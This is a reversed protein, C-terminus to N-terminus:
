KLIILSLGVEDLVLLPCRDVDIVGKHIMDLLRGPTGVLLWPRHRKVAERQRAPSASGIMQQVKDRLGPDLLQQAMHMIQISLEHSPAVVVGHLDPLPRGSRAPNQTKPNVGPQALRQQLQTILPALYALTQLCLASWPYTYM